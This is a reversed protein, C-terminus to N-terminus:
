VVMACNLTVKMEGNIAARGGQFWGVDASAIGCM